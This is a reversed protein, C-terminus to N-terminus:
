RGSDAATGFRDELAPESGASRRLREARALRKELEQTGLATLSQLFSSWHSRPTVGDASLEDFVGPDHLAAQLLNSNM